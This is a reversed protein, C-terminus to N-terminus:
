NNILTSLLRNVMDQTRATLSDGTHGDKLQREELVPTHWYLLWLSYVLWTM